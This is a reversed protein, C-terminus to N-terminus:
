LISAVEIGGQLLPDPPYIGKAFGTTGGGTRGSGTSHCLFVDDQVQNLVWPLLTDPDLVGGALEGKSFPSQDPYM